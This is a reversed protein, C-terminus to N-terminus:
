SVREKVRVPLLIEISLLVLALAVFNGFRDVGRRRLQSEFRSVTAENIENVLDATEVGSETAPLYIGGTLEAIRKLMTEDLRSIVLSGARDTKFEIVEGQANFVPVVDGEATGYGISHITVGREAALAAVPEPAGTQHNEGDSMLVIINEGALRPDFADLAIQLADGIATGQRTFAGSNAARVFAGAADADPTLPVQLFADGAFIVLGYQSGAQNRMVEQIAFKARELRSPSIDQADMSASVDLAFIISTGQTEIIEVETGWVPRALAVIVCALVGLWLAMKARVRRVSVRETMNAILAADGIRQMRAARARDRWVLVALLAPLALLLLLILPDEFTM